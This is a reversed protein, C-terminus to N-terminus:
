DFYIRNKVELKYDSWYLIDYDPSLYVLYKINADQAVCVVALTVLFGFILKGNFQFNKKFQQDM